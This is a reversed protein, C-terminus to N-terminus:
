RGRIQTHSSVSRQLRLQMCQPEEAPLARLWSSLVACHRDTTSWSASRPQSTTVSDPPSGVSRSSQSAMAAAAWPRPRSTFMTVLPVRTSSASASRSALEASHLTATLRSPGFSTCSAMRPSPVKAGVARAISLSARRPTGAATIAVTLWYLRSRSSSVRWIARSRPAEMSRKWSALGMPLRSACSSKTSSGRSRSRSSGVSAPIRAAPPMVILTPSEMPKQPGYSPSSRPSDHSPLRWRQDPQWAPMCAIPISASPPTLPQRDICARSRPLSRSGKRSPLRRSSRSASMQRRGPAKAYLRACSSDSRVPSQRRHWCAARQRPPARHTAAAKVPARPSSGMHQCRTAFIPRLGSSGLGSRTPMADAAAAAASTSPPPPPQWSSRSGSGWGPGPTVCHSSTTQPQWSQQGSQSYPTSGFRHRRVVASCHFSQQSPSYGLASEQRAGSRSSSPTESTTSLQGSTGLASWASASPSSTPSTQSSGGGGAQSATTQPQSSQQGM